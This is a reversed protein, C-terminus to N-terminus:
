LAQMDHAINIYYAAICLQQESSNKVSAPQQQNHEPRSRQFSVSTALADTTIALVHASEVQGYFGVWPL